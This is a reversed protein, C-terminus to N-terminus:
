IGRIPMLFRPSSMAALTLATGYATKVNVDAKAALLHRCRGRAHGRQAALMLAMVGDDRQLNGSFNSAVATAARADHMALDIHRRIAVSLFSNAEDGNPGRCSPLGAM